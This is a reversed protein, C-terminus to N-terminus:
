LKKILGKLRKQVEECLLTQQVKELKITRKRLDIHQPNWESHYVRM